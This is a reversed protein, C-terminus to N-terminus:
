SDATSLRHAHEQGYYFLTDLPWELRVCSGDLGSVKRLM